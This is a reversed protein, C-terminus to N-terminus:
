LEVNLEYKSTITPIRGHNDNTKVAVKRKKVRAKNLKRNEM